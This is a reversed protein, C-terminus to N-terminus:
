ILIDVTLISSGEAFDALEQSAFHRNGKICESIPQGVLPECIMPVVFLLPYLHPYGKLEMGIRVVACVKPDKRESGVAAISPHKERERNLDLLTRAQETIYSRQTGSDHLVRREVTM